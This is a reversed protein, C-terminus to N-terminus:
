NNGQAIQIMDYIVKARRAAEDAPLADETSLKKYKKNHIREQFVIASLSCNALMFYLADEHNFDAKLLLRFLNDFTFRAYVIYLENEDKPFEKLFDLEEEM